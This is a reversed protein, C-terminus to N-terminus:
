RGVSFQVRLRVESTDPHSSRLVIEAEDSSPEGMRVMPRTGMPIEVLLPVHTLTDALQRREGLSVHLEPPDISAVEFKTDVAHPGRVAVNLRVKKGRSSRVAGLNLLGRNAVWGPGFISIDGVVRGLLPIMVQQAQKWNTKMTLIGSFPGITKGAQYTATVKVGSRSDPKPLDRSEVSEITIDVHEAMEQDDIEYSVVEIAQALDSMLHLHVTSSKGVSITGFVLESPSMFSAEVVEGHVTIEIRSHLPDSSKFSAGHRFPGTSNRAAWELTVNSEEGPPIEIKGGPTVEESELEVATCKCTKSLFEITLPVTGINRMVFDHRRSTGREMKGFPYESEPLELLPAGGDPSEIEGPTIREKDPFSTSHRAEVYALAAGLAAGALASWLAMSLISRTM